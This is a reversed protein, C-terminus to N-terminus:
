VAVAKGAQRAVGAVGAVEGMGCWGATEWEACIMQRSKLAATQNGCMPCVLRERLAPMRLGKKTGRVTHFRPTAGCQCKKDSMM